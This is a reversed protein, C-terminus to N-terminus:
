IPRLRFDFFPMGSKEYTPREERAINHCAAELARLHRLPDLRFQRELGENSSRLELLNLRFCPSFRNPAPSYVGEFCSV